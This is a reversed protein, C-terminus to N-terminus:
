GQRITVTVAKEKVSEAYKEAEEKTKAVFTYASDNTTVSVLYVDM